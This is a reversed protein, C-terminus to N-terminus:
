PAPSESENKEFLDPQAGLGKRQSSSPAIVALVTLDRISSRPIFIRQTNSRTDPPTLLLGAGDVLSRDNAAIGELEEGDVLILHLWLGAIRPRSAFRKRLLREPYQPDSRSITASAEALPERVFCVWKIEQWDLRILRGAPDLIELETASNSTDDAGFLDAPAYGAYWDRSLKRVIVPKRTATM